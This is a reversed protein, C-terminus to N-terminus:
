ESPAPLDVRRGTEMSQKAAEVMAQSVRAMELNEASDAPTHRYLFYKAQVMFMDDNTVGPDTLTESKGTRYDEITLRNGDQNWELYGQDGAVAFDRRNHRQMFCLNVSVALGPYDIIAHATDEVDMAAGGFTGGGCSVAAPPGFFWNCLDFEHIETLLVGGGLEKRCAYLGLFNEYAHWAPVYSAVSFSASFVRGLRGGAIAEHAKGILGHHRRQFSILFNLKNALVTDRFREFGDLNHSFPKEIFIDVGREAAMMAAGFHLSSPTSIVALDPGDDLAAELSDFSTLGYADEVTGGDNVSFDANLLPSTRHSRFCTFRCGDGLLSKFVRLHRQGAGGLGIFLIKRLKM